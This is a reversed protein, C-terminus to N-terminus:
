GLNKEPCAEQDRDRGHEWPGRGKEGAAEQGTCTFVTGASTVHPGGLGWSNQEPVKELQGRRTRVWTVGM